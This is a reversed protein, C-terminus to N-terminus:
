LNNEKTYDNIMDEIKLLEELYEDNYKNLIEKEEKSIIKKNLYKIDLERKEKEIYSFKKCIIDLM